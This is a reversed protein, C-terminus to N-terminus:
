EVILKQSAIGEASLLYIGKALGQVKATYNNAQNLKIEMVLQWADPGDWRLPMTALEKEGIGLWCRGTACMDPLLMRAMASSLKRRSAPEEGYGYMKVAACGVMRGILDRDIEESLTELTGASVALPAPKRWKGDKKRERTMTEVVLGNGELTAEADIVYLLERGAPWPEAASASEGTPKLMQFYPKWPLALKKGHPVAQGHQWLLVITGDESIAAVPRAPVLPKQGNAPLRGEALISGLRGGPEALLAAVQAVHVCPVPAQMRFHYCSCQYQLLGKDPKLLVDVRGGDFVRAVLWGDRGLYLEVYPHGANLFPRQAAPLHHILNDAFQSVTPSADTRPNVEIM